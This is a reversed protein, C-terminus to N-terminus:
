MQLKNLKGPALKGYNNEETKKHLFLLITRGFTGGLPSLTLPTLKKKAREARSSQLWEVELVRPVV